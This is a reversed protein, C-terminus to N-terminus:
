WRYQNQLGPQVGQGFTLPNLHLNRKSFLRRCVNWARWIETWLVFCRFRCWLLGYDPFRCSMNSSFMCCFLNSKGGSTWEPSFRPSFSFYRTVSPSTWSCGEASSRINEGASFYEGRDKASWDVWDTMFILNVTLCRNQFRSPWSLFMCSSCYNGKRRLRNWWLSLIHIRENRNCLISPSFM